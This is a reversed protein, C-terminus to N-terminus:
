NLKHYPNPPIDYINYTEKLITLATEAAFNQADIKLSMKCNTLIKKNIEEKKRDGFPYGIVTVSYLRKENEFIEETKMATPFSWGRKDCLEKYRTKADFIDKYELSINITQLFSKIINYSVTMGVGESLFPFRQKTDKEFVIKVAGIFAELTDELISMYEKNKHRYDSTMKSFNERLEESMKIYEFFGAREAILGLEKKSIINHKLRTLYKVSVIKENWERLYNVVSYNVIVDGVLELLEYNNDIDISKHTFALEFMELNNKIVIEPNKVNARKVLSCIFNEFNMKSM